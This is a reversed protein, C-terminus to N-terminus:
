VALSRFLARRWTGSDIGVFSVAALGSLWCRLGNRSHSNRMPEYPPVSKSEGRNQQYPDARSIERVILPQLRVLQRASRRFDTERM